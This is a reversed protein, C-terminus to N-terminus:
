LVNQDYIPERKKNRHLRDRECWPCGGHNTCSHSPHSPTGDRVTGNKYTREIFDKYRKPHKKRITRSM